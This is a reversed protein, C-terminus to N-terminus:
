NQESPGDDEEARPLTLTFVAGSEPAEHCELQGGHERAIWYSIALGLGTGSGPAKTTFFPEFIRERAELPVGPGQDIVDVAWQPGTDRARVTILDGHDSADQANSMLNVLVQAIRQGDAVVFAGEPVDVAWQVERGRKSLKVLRLADGVIEYLDTPVAARRVVRENRSFQLLTGIIEEIRRSEHVILSLRHVTDEDRACERQMNQAVMLVGALPNGIEHAVGAAFRGVSSLRDRHALQSQMAHQQTLDEILLADGQRQIPARTLEVVREDVSQPSGVLVTHERPVGPQAHRTADLLAGWPQGVEDIQAGLIDQASIGTLETMKHNWVLVEGTTAVTCVGLPL